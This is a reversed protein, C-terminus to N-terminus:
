TCLTTLASIVKSTALVYVKLESYDFSLAKVTDLAEDDIPRYASKVTDCPSMCRLASRSLEVCNFESATM